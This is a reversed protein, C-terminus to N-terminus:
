PGNHRLPKVSPSPAVPKEQGYGPNHVLYANWAKQLAGVKFDHPTAQTIAVQRLLGYGIEGLCYSVRLDFGEARLEAAAQERRQQREQASIHRAFDGTKQCIRAYWLDEKLDKDTLPRTRLFAEVEAAKQLRSKGPTYAALYDLDAARCGNIGYLDPVKMDELLNFVVLPDLELREAYHARPNSVGNTFVLLDRGERETLTVYDLTGSNQRGENMFFEM